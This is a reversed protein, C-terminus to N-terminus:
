KALIIKVLVIIFSLNLPRSFPLKEWHPCLIVNPRDKQELSLQTKLKNLDQRVQGSVPLGPPSKLANVWISDHCQVYQRRWPFWNAATLLIPNANCWVPVCLHSLGPRLLGKCEPLLEYQGRHAKHRHEWLCVPFCIQKITWIWIFHSLSSTEAGPLFCHECNSFNSWINSETLM